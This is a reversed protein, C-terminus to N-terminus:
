EIKLGFAKVAVGFKEFDQKVRDSAFEPTSALPIMGADSITKRIDPRAFAAALSAQVRKVIDPPTGKPASLGFWAVSSFRLGLEMATPVNPLAPVRVPSTTLLARVKGSEIFPKQVGVNDIITEIHGGMLDTTAPMSGKYPVISMDIGAAKAFILQTLHQHTGLGGNGMKVQGPSRRALEILEKLTKPGADKNAVLVFPIDVLISVHEMQAPDYSLKYVHPNIAVNGSSSLVFTYGDATARAVSEVGISGGAGPRSVVVVPQGLDKQMAEAAMRALTDSAGGPASALVITIPKVPYPQAAANLGLGFACLAAVAVRSFKRRNM